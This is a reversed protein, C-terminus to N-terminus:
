EGHFNKSTSGAQQLLCRRWNANYECLSWLAPTNQPRTRHWCCHVRCTFTLSPQLLLEEAGFWCPWVCRARVVIYSGQVRGLPRRDAGEARYVAARHRHATHQDPAQWAQAAHDCRWARVAGVLIVGWQGAAAVKRVADADVVAGRGVRLADHEGDPASPHIRIRTAILSPATSAPRTISTPAPPRPPLPETTAPSCRSRPRADSPRLGEPSPARHASCGAGQTRPESEITGPGPEIAARRRPSPSLSANPPPNPPSTSNLQAPPQACRAVARSAGGAQIFRCWSVALGTRRRRCM